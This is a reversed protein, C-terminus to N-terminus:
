LIIKKLYLERFSSSSAAELNLMAYGDVTKVNEGSLVDGAVEARCCIAYIHGNETMNPDSNRSLPEVSESLM